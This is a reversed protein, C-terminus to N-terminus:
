GGGHVGDGIPNHGIPVVHGVVMAIASVAAAVAPPAAAVAAGIVSRSSPAAM